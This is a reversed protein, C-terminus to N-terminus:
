QVCLKGIAASNRRPNRRKHAGSGRQRNPLEGAAIEGHIVQDSAARKRLRKRLKQCFLNRASLRQEDTASSAGSLGRKQANERVRNGLFLAEEYDLVRRLKLNLLRVDYRDCRLGIGELGLHRKVREQLASEAEAWVPDNKPLNELDRLDSSLGSFKEQAREREASARRKRERVASAQLPSLEPFRERIAQEIAAMDLPGIGGNIAATGLAAGLKVQVRKIEGDLRDIQNSTSEADSGAATGEKQLLLEEGTISGIIARVIQLTHEKSLDRVPSLSETSSHRWELAHGFRCEQDRSLWALAAQWVESPAVNPPMLAAVGPLIQNQIASVLPEMTTPVDSEQAQELTAGQLVIDRGRGSISRLVGWQQGDLMMEIGVQGKPFASQIRSRQDRSGFTEEGLCYRLLRCFTTKGAGHGIPAKGDRSDPSWIINLGERLEIERVLVGLESWICFRKVWLRPGTRGPEPEVSFPANPFLDPM